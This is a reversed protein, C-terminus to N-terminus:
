YPRTPESIHILSLWLVGDKTTILMTDNEILSLAWPKDFTAIIEGFIKSGSTGIIQMANLNNAFVGELFFTFIITCFLNLKTKM